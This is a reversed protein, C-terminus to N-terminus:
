TSRHYKEFCPELCLGPSDPCMTCHYLSDKRINKKFCVRCKKRCTKGQATRKAIKQPLHSASRRIPAKAKTGDEPLMKELVALRFDYFSIHKELKQNYLYWSNHLMIQIIHIGVKKYWRLIKRTCPYYAIMQDMRDIGSMSKNYESIPLPKEKEEGWRNKVLIMENRFETSLYTVDRKDRWKAVMVGDRYAAKTEGKKLKAKMIDKPNDKRDSRLTGTCYTKLDLLQKALTYSNYFNDMFIAHGNGLYERMLHLVVKSAHGKGGMEDAQGTYLAMTLVLGEPETLIYIKIGFKHKKNKIYQKFLLRGRWLLMSEDLSLNKSPYYIDKM